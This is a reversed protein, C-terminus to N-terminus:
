SQTEQTIEPHSSNWESLAARGADTLETHGTNVVDILGSELLTSAARSTQAKTSYGRRIDWQKGTHFVAFPRRSVLELLRHRLETWNPETAM